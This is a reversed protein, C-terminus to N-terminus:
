MCGTIVLVKTPMTNHLMKHNTTPRVYTLLPAEKGHLSKYQEKMNLDPGTLLEALKSKYVSQNFDGLLIIEEGQHKWAKLDDMLYRDAEVSPDLDPKGKRKFERTHQM